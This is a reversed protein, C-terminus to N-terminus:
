QGTQIMELFAEIRTRLQEYDSSSYDTELHLCPLRLEQSVYEEIVKSEVNYTHCFLWNLDIVAHVSFEMSLQRIADLRGQNPTMCSCPISLYREALITLPDQDQVPSTFLNKMGTCNEM